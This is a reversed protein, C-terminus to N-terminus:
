PLVGIRWQLAGEGRGGGVQSWPKSRGGREVPLWDERPHSWEAVMELESDLVIPVVQILGAFSVM